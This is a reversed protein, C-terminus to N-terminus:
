TSSSGSATPTKLFALLAAMPNSARLNSAVVKADSAIVDLTNDKFTVVWHRAKLVSWQITERSETIENFAYFELGAKAYPHEKRLGEDNIATLHHEIVDIFQVISYHKSASHWVAYCLWLDKSDCLVAPLDPIILEPADKWISSRPSPM